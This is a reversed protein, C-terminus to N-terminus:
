NCPLKRVTTGDCCYRASPTAKWSASTSTGQNTIVTGDVCGECPGAWGPTHAVAIDFPCPLGEFYGALAGDVCEGWSAGQIKQALEDFRYCWSAAQLVATGSSCPATNTCAVPASAERELAWDMAADFLSFASPTFTTIMDSTAFWGVRRAPAALGMMMHGKRYAYITPHTPDSTTTAIRLAAPAPQGIAMAGPVTTVNVTGSLGAALPHGPAMIQITTAPAGRGGAITMALNDNTTSDFSLVPVAVDRFKTGLMTSISSEAIILLAKGKLDDVTADGDDALVVAIGRRELHEKLLKDGPTAQIPDWVVLLVTTAPSSAPRDTQTASDAGLDIGSGISTDTPGGADAPLATEPNAPLGDLTGVSLDSTADSPPKRARLEGYNPACSALGV